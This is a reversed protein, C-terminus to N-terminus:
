MCLYTWSYFQPDKMCKRCKSIKRCFLSSHFFHRFLECIFLYFGCPPQVWHSLELDLTFNMVFSKLVTSNLKNFKCMFKCMFTNKYNKERLYSEKITKGSVWIVLLFTKKKSLWPSHLEESVNGRLWKVDQNGAKPWRWDCDSRWSCLLSFHDWLLM